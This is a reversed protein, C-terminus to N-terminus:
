LNPNFMENIAAATERIKMVLETDRETYIGLKGRLVMSVYKPTCGLKRAVLIYTGRLSQDNNKKTKEMEKAKVKNRKVPVFIFSIYRKYL